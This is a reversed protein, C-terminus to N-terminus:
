TDERSVPVTELKKLHECVALIGLTLYTPPTRVGREWRSVTTGVVFPGPVAIRIKAAFQVQTLGAAERAKRIEAPTVYPAKKRKM